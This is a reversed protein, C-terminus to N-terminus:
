KAEIVENRLRNAIFLDVPIEEQKIHNKNFTIKFHNPMYNLFILLTKLLPFDEPDCKLFLMNVTPEVDFVNSLIIIHNM